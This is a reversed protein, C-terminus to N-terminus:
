WIWRIKGVDPTPVTGNRLIAPFYVVFAKGVILDRNVVGPTSDIYERVWPNISGDMWLRSDLSRPSNDGCMFFEDPSLTPFFDPHGGRTPPSGNSEPPAIQYSIDREISVNTLTFGGGGFGWHVEPARYIDPRSLVGARTVGNGISADQHLQEYSFVTAAEARQAPTLTYGGAEPGGCVLQGDIFLWLAQDVHWFEIRTYVNSAMAGIQASDLTQWATDEHQDPKMEVSATNSAPDVVARFMMGRAKITPTVAVPTDTPKINVAMAIDSVPFPRPVNSGMPDTHKSFLDFRGRVQNQNYPYRDTIPRINTWDLTTSTSGAYTYTSTHLGEWGPTSGALPPRFSPDAAIPAFRSNYVPLFMTRQIREPKRAVQWSDEQWSDWGIRTTNDTFPRVFVDGDVLAIQESPLGILRKIYNEHTGPNKFVVVDWRNPSHMFPLYKLVFVRDGSSLRVNTEKIDQGSMPDTVRIPNAAGQMRMPQRNPSYDWPGVEWRYGNAPATFQMHKGMLTPAMSGTPIVFGEVVFGRFLFALMFAIILSTLTEKIGAPKHTNKTTSM